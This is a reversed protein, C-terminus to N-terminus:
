INLHQTSCVKININNLNNSAYSMAYLILYMLGDKVTM